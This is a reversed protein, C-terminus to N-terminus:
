GVRKIAQDPSLLLEDVGLAIGMFQAYAITGVGPAPPTLTLRAASDVHYRGGPTLAAYVGVMSGHLQVFCATATSKAIIIGVVGRGAPPVTIDLKTVQILGAVKPGSIRVCDGVLDASLCGADQISVVKPNVREM